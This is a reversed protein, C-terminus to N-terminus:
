REIWNYDPGHYQLYMTGIYEVHGDCFATTNGNQESENPLAGRGSNDHFSWRPLDTWHAARKMDYLVDFASWENVLITTGPQKIQSAREYGCCKTNRIDSKLVLLANYNYSTGSTSFYANTIGQLAMDGGPGFPPWLKTDGKPDSPCMYVPARTKAPLYRNLAREYPRSDKSWKSPLYYYDWDMTVGGWSYWTNWGPKGSGTPAVYLRDDNDLGYLFVAKAIQGVNSLCVVKRASAKARQLAPTLVAMLLAMIAIVVLLEILTFGKKRHM